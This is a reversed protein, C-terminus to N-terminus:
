HPCEGYSHGIVCAQEVGMKDLVAVVREVVEDASMVPSLRMAVGTCQVVILPHGLAMVQVICLTIAFTPPM